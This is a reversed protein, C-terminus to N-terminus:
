NTTALVVVIVTLKLLTVYAAIPNNTKPPIPPNTSSPLKRKRIGLPQVIRMVVFLLLSRSSVVILVLCGDVDNVEVVVVDDLVDDELVDNLAERLGLAYIIIRSLVM